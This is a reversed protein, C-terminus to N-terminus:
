LKQGFTSEAEERDRIWLDDLAEDNVKISFGYLPVRGGAEEIWGEGIYNIELTIKVKQQIPQGNFVLTKHDYMIKTFKNEVQEYGWSKFFDFIGELATTVKSLEEPNQTQQKMVKSNLIHDLIYTERSMNLKQINNNIM